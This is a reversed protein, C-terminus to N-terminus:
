ITEVASPQFYSHKTLKETYVNKTRAKIVLIFFILSNFFAKSQLNFNEALIM